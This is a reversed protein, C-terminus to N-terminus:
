RRPKYPAFSHLVKTLLAEHTSFADPTALVYILLLHGRHNTALADYRVDRGHQQGSGTTEVFSLKNYRTRYHKNAPVGFRDTLFTLAQEPTLQAAANRMKVVFLMMSEDPNLYSVATTSDTTQRLQNWTSPVHYSLKYEASQVVDFPPLAAQGLAAFPSLLALLCNGLWFRLTTM